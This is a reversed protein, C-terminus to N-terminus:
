TSNAELLAAPVDRVAVPQEDYVVKFKIDGRHEVSQQDTQGLTQKGLWIQMTTDPATGPRLFIPRGKDDWAPSGDEKTAQIAPIGEAKAWQLRRLSKRGGELGKKYIGCFTNDRTLTDVSCGLHAAIEEQTCQIHALKAVQEYDIIIKPRGIRKKKEVVM